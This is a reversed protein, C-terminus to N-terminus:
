KQGAIIGNNSDKGLELVGAPIVKVFYMVEVPPTSKAVMKKLDSMDEESTVYGRVSLSGGSGTFSSIQINAFRPEKEIMPRLITTHEDALAINAM